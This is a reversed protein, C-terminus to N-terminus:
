HQILHTSSSKSGSGDPCCTQQIAPDFCHMDGDSSPCQVYGAGCAEACTDGTGCFTQTPQYGSQRKLLGFATNLSMSALKYPAPEATVQAAILLTSVILAKIGMKTATRFLVSLSHPLLLISFSTVSHKSFVLILLVVHVSRSSDTSKYRPLGGM